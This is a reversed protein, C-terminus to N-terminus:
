SSELLRDLYQLILIGVVVSAAVTLWFGHIFYPSQDLAWGGLSPGVFYGIAWCQSNIALYVGRMSEPALDVVLAAAFSTYSVTAIALIGLALIAWTLHGMSAVGTVWVLIFGVAWILLSFSLARSRSWRSLFRAVPLQFLVALAIHWTILSSIITPSLGTTSDKISVFNSLYLPMTSHIQAMYTTFLINVLVFLILRQDCFATVWGQHVSQEQEQFHYTEAIAWYIIAFFVVFSIGDIVFLVRYNGSTAILAGGLIVGIGLGLSDALRTIAFAENREQSTTVDAVAAETAPWYLGIGLGMLLNGLVLTPFNYTLALVLDALASVAASLLLTGRRGWFKSDTFAGGLFRGVVGSISSSGLAIGVATASFGVQNVFFIPAYFLTFGSGIQSLLRGAALIWVERRFHPFFSQLKQKFM